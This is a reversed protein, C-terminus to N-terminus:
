DSCENSTNEVKYERFASSYEIGGLQAIASMIQDTAASLVEHSLKTDYWKSLDLPEGYTVSTRTFKFFVRIMSKSRPANHIFVPIVPVRSKLALWAVGTGGALLQSDPSKDNLRGEPFLGLLHGAELRKLAEKVPGMDRGARAVPISQMTRCVWGVPGRQLYYERAMMFGIVRIRYKRFSAFHRMWVIVPDVPSTHNAVIIAPGEEPFPCANNAKWRCFIRTQLRGTMYCFWVGWGAGSRGISIMAAVLIAVCTGALWYLGSTM